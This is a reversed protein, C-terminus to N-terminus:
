RVASASVDIPKELMGQKLMTQAFWNMSAPDVAARCDPVNLTRVIDIPLKTYKAIHEQAKGPNARIFDSAQALSTRFSRLAAPNRTAWERTTAFVIFPLGSPLDNVIYRAVYGIDTSTIRGMMPEGTLVADVSKGRLADSSNPVAVEIFTVKAPDVGESVLWQRLLVHLTAGIGPVGVKKGVLDAAKQIQVDKRAVLGINRATSASTVGCGGVTVMDLGGAVAQLFVTPSPGAVQLSGGALAAPLVSNVGNPVLQVELGNRKFIGEEVGVYLSVVEAIPTHGVLIKEEAAAPAVSATLLTLAALARPLTNKM